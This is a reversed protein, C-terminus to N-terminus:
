EPRREPFLSMAFPRRTARAILPTGNSRGRNAYVAGVNEWTLAIAHASRFRMTGGAARRPGGISVVSVIGSQCPPSSKQAPMSLGSRM